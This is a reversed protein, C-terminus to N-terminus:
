RSEARLQEELWPYFFKLESEAMVVLQRVPQGAKSVGMAMLVRGGPLRRLRLSFQPKAADPFLHSSTQEAPFLTDVNRDEEFSCTVSVLRGDKRHYVVQHSFDDHDVNEGIRYQWSRFDAGFDQTLTPQGLAKVADAPSEVNVLWKVDAVQSFLPVAGLLGGILIVCVKM